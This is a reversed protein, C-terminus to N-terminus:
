YWQPAPAVDIEIAGDPVPSQGLDSLEVRQTRPIGYPIEFNGAMGRNAM